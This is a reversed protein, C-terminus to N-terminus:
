LQDGHAKNNITQLSFFFFSVHEAEIFYVREVCKEKRRSGGLTFQLLTTYM